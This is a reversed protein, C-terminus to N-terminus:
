TINMFNKLYEGIQRVSQIDVEKNQLVNELDTILKLYLYKDLFKFVANTEQFKSSFGLDGMNKITDISSFKKRMVKWEQKDEIMSLIDERIELKKQNLYDKLELIKHRPLKSIVKFTEIYDIVDRRLEGIETDSEGALREVEKIIGAFVKYPNYTIPKLKPPIIWLDDNLSWVAGTLLDQSPNDQIYVEFPFKKKEKNAFWNNKDRNNKYYNMVNKQLLDIRTKGLKTRDPIIHIDLDVKDEDYTNTTSSGVIHIDMALDILNFLPYSDLAAVIEEKLLPKLVYSDNKKDWVELPLSIKAFDVSSEAVKGLQAFRKKIDNIKMM